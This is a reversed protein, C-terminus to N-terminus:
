DTLLRSLRRDMEPAFPNVITVGSWNFGPQLDESLLLQCKAGSAVSVILSDWFQLKHDTALDIALAFAEASSAVTEFTGIWDLLTERCRERPYGFKLMVRYAEGLTQYPLVIKVDPVFAMMLRDIQETKARDAEVKWIRAMYILLNSDFAIRLGL